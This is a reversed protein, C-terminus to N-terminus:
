RPAGPAWSAFDDYEVAPVAASRYTQRSGDFRLVLDRAEGNRAKRCRWTVGVTGDPAVVPEGNREETEGVFLMDAAYDLEATGRAFQGARSSSGTSKAMSSVVIVACEHRVAMERLAGITRDLDAVRDRGGDPVSVLQLYDCVALKAGTSAVAAEIGAVTLPPQVFTIRGATMEAVAARADRARKTQSTAETMTIADCGDAIGSGVTVLRRAIGAPTMEGLGWVVRLETDAYLAGACWQLALASKGCGPPAILAVIGGAPLGGDFARDIWSFGTPVTPTSENRSLADIAEIDTLARQGFAPANLRALAAQLVEQAETGGDSERFAEAAVRAQELSYRNAIREAARRAVVAAQRGTAIRDAVADGFLNYTDTGQSYGAAHLRAAVDPLTPTRSEAVATSIAKYVEHYDGTVAATPLTTTVELVTGLDRDLLDLCAAVLCQEDHDTAVQKM